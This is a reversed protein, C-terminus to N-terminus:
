FILKFKEKSGLRKEYIIFFLLTRSSILLREESQLVYESFKRKPLQSHLESSKISLTKQNIEFLVNALKHLGIWWIIIVTWRTKQIQLYHFFLPFIIFIQFDWSCFSSRLHFLFFNQNNTFHKWKTFYLFTALM